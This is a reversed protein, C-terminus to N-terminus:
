DNRTQSKSQIFESLNVTHNYKASAIKDKELMVDNLDIDNIACIAVIYHIMDAFEVGLEKQMDRGDDSKRGARMNLIEAVEGMEEVLKIFLGQENAWGAYRDRLYEQLDDITIKM